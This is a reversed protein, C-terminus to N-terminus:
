VNEIDIKGRVSITNGGVGTVTRRFPEMHSLIEPFYEDVLEANLLSVESGTDYPGRVTITEGQFMLQVDVGYNEVEHDVEGIHRKRCVCVKVTTQPGTAIEPDTM